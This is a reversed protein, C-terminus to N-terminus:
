LFFGSFILFALMRIISEFCGILQLYLKQGEAVVACVEVNEHKSANSAKPLRIRGSRRYEQIVWQKSNYSKTRHPTHSIEKLVSDVRM